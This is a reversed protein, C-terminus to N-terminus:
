SSGWKAAHPNGDGDEDGDWEARDLNLLPCCFFRLFVFISCLLHSGLARDARWTPKKEDACRVSLGFFRWRFPVRFEEANRMRSFEEKRRVPGIQTPHAEANKNIEFKELFSFKSKSVALGFSSHIIEVHLFFGWNSSRISRLPELNLVLSASFVLLLFTQLNQM